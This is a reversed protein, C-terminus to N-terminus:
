ILSILTLGFNSDAKVVMDPALKSGRERGTRRQAAGVSAQRWPKATLALAVADADDM